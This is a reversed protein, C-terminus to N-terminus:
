EDEEDRWRTQIQRVSDTAHQLMGKRNWEPLLHYGGDCLSLISFWRNNDGDIVESIVIVSNLYAPDPKDQAQLESIHQYLGPYLEEINEYEEIYDM